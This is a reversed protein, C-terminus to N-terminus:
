EVETSNGWGPNQKLEPVLLIQGNPLPMRYNKSEFPRDPMDLIEYSFDAASSNFVPIQMKIKQFNDSPEKWRRMDYFRHEEFSLEIIREKRVKAQFESKSMGTPYEPLSINPTQGLFMEHSEYKGRTRVANLAQRATMGIGYQDADPGYAQNMAEAYNLLIEAYRIYPFDQSRASINKYDVIEIERDAFKAWFVYTLNSLSQPVPNHVPSYTGAKKGVIVNKGRFRAGNFLFDRYFRPDRNKYPDVAPNYGLAELGPDDPSYAKGNYIVDYERLLNYTVNWIGAETAANNNYLKNPISVQTTYSGARNRRVFIFEPNVDGQVMFMDSLNSYLSYKNMAIVEKAAEAAKKWKDAGYAGRFPSDQSKEPNNWLPSAAYLLVRSKLALAAGKTARGYNANSTNVPLDTTAEDLLKIIYTVTQDFTARPIVTEKEEPNYTQDVIPVGGFLRLMEHYFYAILFKAEGRRHNKVEQTFNNDPDLPIREWNELYLWANRIRRYNWIDRMPMKSNGPYSDWDETYASKNFVDPMSNVASPSGDVTGLDLPYNGGFRMGDGPDRTPLVPTLGTYLQAMAREAFTANLFVDDLSTEKVEKDLLDESDTCSSFILSASILLLGCLKIMAKFKIYIDKKM